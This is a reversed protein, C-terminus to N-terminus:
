PTSRALALAYIKEGGEVEGSDRFGVSEYLAIATSNEPQVSLKLTRVNPRNGVVRIIEIMTAKGLGRGQYRADVMIRVLNVTAPDGHEALPYLMVFGFLTEDAYVGYPEAEPYVYAQAVSRINSAVFQRNGEGPDLAIVDEFNDSTVSELRVSGQRRDV